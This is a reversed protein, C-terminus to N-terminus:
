SCSRCAGGLRNVLGQRYIVVGYLVFKGRCQIVVSRLTQDFSGDQAGWLEKNTDVIRLADLNM